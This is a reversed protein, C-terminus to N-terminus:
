VMNRPVYENDSKDYGVIFLTKFGDAASSVLLHDRRIDKLNIEKTYKIVYTEMINAKLENELYLINELSLEDSSEDIHFPVETIGFCKRFDYMFNNTELLSRLSGCLGHIITDRLRYAFRGCYEQIAEDFKKSRFLGLIDDLTDDMYVVVPLQYKLKDCVMIGNFNINAPCTDQSVSVGIYREDDIHSNRIEAFFDNVGQRCVAYPLDLTSPAGNLNQLAIIVDSSGGFEVISFIIVGDASLMTYKSLLDEYSMSHRKKNSDFYKVINGDEDASIIRIIEPEDSDDIFRFFKSGTRPLSTMVPEVKEITKVSM